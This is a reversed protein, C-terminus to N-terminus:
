QRVPVLPISNDAPSFHLRELSLQVKLPSFMSSIL